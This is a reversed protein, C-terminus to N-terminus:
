EPVWWPPQPGHNLTWKVVEYVANLTDHPVCAESCQLAQIMIHATVAPTLNEDKLIYTQLVFIYRWYNNTRM